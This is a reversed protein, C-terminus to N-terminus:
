NHASCALFDVGLDFVDVPIKGIAQTADCLFPIERNHAIAVADKVPQIVGTENNALMIAVLATDDRLSKELAELDVLGEESVQM